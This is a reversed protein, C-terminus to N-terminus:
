KHVSQDKNNQQTSKAVPVSLLWWSKNEVYVGLEEYATSELFLTSTLTVLYIPGHTRGCLCSCSLSCGAPLGSDTPVRTETHTDVARGAGSLQWPSQVGTEFNWRELGRLWPLDRWSPAQRELWLQIIALSSFASQSSATLSCTGARLPCKPFAPPLPCTNPLWLSQLLSQHCKPAPCPMGVMRDEPLGTCHPIKGGSRFVVNMVKLGVFQDRSVHLNLINHTTEVYMSYELFAIQM